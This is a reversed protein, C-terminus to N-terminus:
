EVEEAKQEITAPSQPAENQLQRMEEPLEMSSLLESTQSQTAGKIKEALDEWAEKIRLKLKDLGGFLAKEDFNIDVFQYTATMTLTVTGDASVGSLQKSSLDQYTQQMREQMDGISSKLDDILAMTNEGTLNHVVLAM